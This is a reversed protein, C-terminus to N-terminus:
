TMIPVKTFSTLILRNTHLLIMTIKQIAISKMQKSHERAAFYVVLVTKVSILQRNVFKVFPVNARMPASLLPSPPFAARQLYKPGEQAVKAGESVQTTFRTQSLVVSWFGAFVKKKKLVSTKPDFFHELDPSSRLGRNRTGSKPSRPRAGGTWFYNGRWQECSNCKFSNKDCQKLCSICTTKPAM